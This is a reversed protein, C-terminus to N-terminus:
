HSLCCRFYLKGFTDPRELEVSVSYARLSLPKLQPTGARMLLSIDPRVWDLEKGAVM